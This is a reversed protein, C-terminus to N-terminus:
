VLNTAGLVRSWARSIFRDTSNLDDVLYYCEENKKKLGWETWVEQDSRGQTGESLLLKLLWM